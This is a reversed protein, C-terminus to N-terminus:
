PATRIAHMTCDYLTEVIPPAPAPVYPEPSVYLGVDWLPAHRLTVEFPSGVTYPTHTTREGSFTTSGIVQWRFSSYLTYDRYPKALLALEWPGSGTSYTSLYISVDIAWTGKRMLWCDTFTGFGLSAPTLICRADNDSGNIPPSTANSVTVLGPSSYDTTGHEGPFPTTNYEHFADVTLEDVAWWDVDPSAPGNRMPASWSQPVLIEAHRGGSHQIFKNPNQWNHIYGDETGAIYQYQRHEERTYLRSVAPTFTKGLTSM